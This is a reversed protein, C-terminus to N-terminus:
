CGASDAIIWGIPLSDSLRLASLSVCVSMWESVSRSESEAFVTFLSPLVLYLETSGKSVCEIWGAWRM